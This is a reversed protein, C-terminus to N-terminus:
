YTEAPFSGLVINMATVILALMACLDAARLDNRSLVNKVM